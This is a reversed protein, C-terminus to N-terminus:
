LRVEVSLSDQEVAQAKQVKDEQDKAQTKLWIVADASSQLKQNLNMEIFNTALENAIIMARKPDSHEVNIDVLRSLRIPTSRHRRIAWFKGYTSVLQPQPRGVNISQQPPGM